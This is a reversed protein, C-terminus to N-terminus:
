WLRDIRRRLMELEFISDNLGELEYELWPDLNSDMIRGQRRWWDGAATDTMDLQWQMQDWVSPFPNAQAIGWQAPGAYYPQWRPRSKKNSARQAAERAQEGRQTAWEPAGAEDWHWQWYLEWDQDHIQEDTKGANAEATAQEIQKESVGSTVWVGDVLRPPVWGDSYITKASGGAACLAVVTVALVALMVYYRRRNMM